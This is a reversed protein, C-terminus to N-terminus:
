QNWQGDEKIVILNVRGNICKNSIETQEDQKFLNRLILSNPMQAYLYYGLCYGNMMANIDREEMGYGDNFRMRERLLQIM